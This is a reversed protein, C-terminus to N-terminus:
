QDERGPMAEADHSADWIHLVDTKLFTTTLRHLAYRPEGMVNEVEVLSYDLLQRLAETFAQESLASMAQLFPLDEGEPSLPLMALLLHRATDDLLQWTRRYIFTYLDAYAQQRARRLGAIIDDLTLHGIQAAALKLALPLGGMAAYLDRIFADPATDSKGRRVLESRVLAHSDELSLEALAVVYVYPVYSLTHRSTLLFRSAGAMPYLTPLLGEVDELTELNDVVVLYPSTHLIPQIHAVKEDLALGLLSQLGLQEVLHDVIDKLSRAPDQAASVTGTESFWAPRASVWLVDVWAGRSVCAQAVARALATKGLGGLGELSLFRPGDADYLRDLMQRIHDQVGFLQAYESAPIYRGMSTPHRRRRAALEAKRLAVVFYRLGQNVRRTFTHSEVSAADALDEVSLPVPALYRHYLASWSELLINSHSFDEALTSQIVERSEVFSSPLSVIGEARRQLSLADTVISRLCNELALGRVASSAGDAKDLLALTLLDEPLAEAQQIARLTRKLLRPKLAELDM